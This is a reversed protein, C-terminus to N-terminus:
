VALMDSTYPPLLRYPARFYFDCSGRSPSDRRYARGPHCAFRSAQVDLFSQLRSLVTRVSTTTRSFAVASRTVTAPLGFGLPFFRTLAGSPLAPTSTWADLSLNATTFTPFTRYVLLPHDLSCLSVLSHIFRLQHSAKPSACSTMLAIFSPLAEPAFSRQARPALPRSLHRIYGSAVQL